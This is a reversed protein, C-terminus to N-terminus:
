FSMLKKFDMKNGAEFIIKLGHNQVFEKWGDYAIKDTMSNPPQTIALSENDKFFLSLLIAEGINKRRIARVPYVVINNHAGAKNNFNIFSVKNPIKHLGEKKLGSKLLIGYDRSNIVGYHCNEPYDEHFYAGPRGDEAFDHIQIFLRIGRSQLIKLIKLFHRNKNLTANHVHLIDCGEPWKEYIARLIADATNEPDADKAEKIKSDYGTQPILALHFPFDKKDAEGTIVMVGAKDKLAGAQQKIVTTVGGTKLHYHLLAIKLKQTKHSHM